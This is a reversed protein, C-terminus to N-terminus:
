PSMEPCASIEYASGLEEYLETPATNLRRREFIQWEFWLSAAAKELRTQRQRPRFHYGRAAVM